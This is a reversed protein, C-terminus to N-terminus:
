YRQVDSTVGHLAECVLLRVKQRTPEDSGSLPRCSDARAFRTLAETEAVSLSVLGDEAVQDLLSLSQLRASRVDAEELRVAETDDIPM